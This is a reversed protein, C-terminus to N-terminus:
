IVLRNDGLYINNGSTELKSPNSVSVLDKFTKTPEDRETAAKRGLMQREITPQGPQDHGSDEESRTSSDPSVSRGRAPESFTNGSGSKVTTSALSSLKRKKTPVTSM